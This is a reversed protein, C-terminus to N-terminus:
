SFFSTLLTGRVPNSSASKLVEDFSSEVLRVHKPTKVAFAHV